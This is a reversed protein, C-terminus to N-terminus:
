RIKVPGRSGLDGVKEPRLFVVEMLVSGDEGVTFLGYQNSGGGLMAEEQHIEWRDLDTWGDAALAAQEKGKLDRAERASSGFWLVSDRPRGSFNVIVLDRGDSRRLRFREYNHTHGSLVLDVGGDALVDPVSRGEHRYRWLDRAQERHKSASSVIPHHMVVIRIEEPAPPAALEAVLWAMQAEARSRSRPSELGSGTGDDGYVLDNTDMFYFRARGIDKRYYLREASLSRDTSSLFTATHARALGPENGHVEHNGVGVLYPVEPGLALIESLRAFQDSHRGDQVIDGTDILCVLSDGGGTREKMRALLEQWEGDALARQDGIVAFRFGDEVSLGRTEIWREV